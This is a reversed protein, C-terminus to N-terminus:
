TRGWLRRRIAGPLHRHRRLNLVLALAGKLPLAVLLSLLLPVLGARVPEAAYGLREMDQQAMRQCLAVDVRPLMGQWSTLASAAIGQVTEDKCHSSGGHPIALMDAPCDLGLFAGIRELEAEPRATFDEFRVM